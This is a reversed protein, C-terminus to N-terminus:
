LNILSFLLLCLILVLLLLQDKLVLLLLLSKLLLHVSSAGLLSLASLSSASCGSTDLVSATRTESSQIGCKILRMIEARPICPLSRLRPSLPQYSAAFASVDLQSLLDCVLPIFDDFLYVALINFLALDVFITLRSEILM